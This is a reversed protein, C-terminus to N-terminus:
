QPHGFIDSRPSSSREVMSPAAVGTVSWSIAARSPAGSREPRRAGQRVNTAPTAAAANTITPATTTTFRPSSLGGRRVDGRGGDDHAVDIEGHQRGREVAVARATRDGGFHDVGHARHGADGARLTRHLAEDIDDAGVRRRGIRGIRRLPRRDRDRPFVACRERETGATRRLLGVLNRDVLRQGRLVLDAHTVLQHEAGARAETALHRLDERRALGLRLHRRRPRGRANDTDERRRAAIDVVDVQHHHPGLIEADRRVALGEVADVDDRGRAHRDLLQEIADGGRQRGVRHDHRRADDAEVLLEAGLELDLARVVPDQVRVVVEPVARREPLRVIGLGGGPIQLVVVLVVPLRLVGLQPDRSHGEDVGPGREHRVPRVVAAHRRGHHVLGHGSHGLEDVALPLERGCPQALQSLRRM